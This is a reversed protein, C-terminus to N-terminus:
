YKYKHVLLALSSFLFTSMVIRTEASGCLEVAMVEWVSGGERAGGGGVGGEGGGERGGAAGGTQGSGQPETLARDLSEPVRMQAYPRLPPAALLLLHAGTALTVGHRTGAAM